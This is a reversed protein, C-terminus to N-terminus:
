RARNTASAFRVNGRGGKGGGAVVFNQGATKLDKLVNGREADLVVTGVPVFLELDTGKRGACDRSGGPQGKPADYVARGSLHHLTNEHPTATLVVSGGDGGDGGDPGGKPAFKERRFSACGDGGKGGRVVFEIEDVFLM